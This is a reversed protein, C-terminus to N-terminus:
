LLLLVIIIIMVVMIFVIIGNNDHDDYYFLMLLVLVRFCVSAFANKDMIILIKSDRQRKITIPKKLMIIIAIYCYGLVCVCAFADKNM